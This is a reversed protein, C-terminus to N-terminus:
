EGAAKEKTVDSDIDYFKSAAGVRKDFKLIVEDDIISQAADRVEEDGLFLEAFDAAYFKKTLNGDNKVLSFWAGANKVRDSDKIASFISEEDLIRIQEGGWLIRFRCERGETGFRSKKLKAKVESGARFGKEDYFYSAKAKRGTLYIRLSSAYHMSKGGPTIYPDIMASAVDRTINTKLQNLVLFTGSTANLPVTLKAMAKSLIRAKLGITEQPNFTGEVDTVTPTNALSDWIFLIRKSGSSLVSEVAELVQEVSIATIYLFMGEKCGMKMLFDEDIAAESDFYVVEIGMENANAAIQAAMYSKGSGELGAIETIKGVPIGARKGRCIISDLWTSGTPIWEKVNTPNDGSNLHRAVTMGAKKNLLDKINDLSLKGPTDNTKKKAMLSEQLFHPMQLGM